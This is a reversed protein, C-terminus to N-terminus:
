KCDVVRLDNTTVQFGNEDTWEETGSQSTEPKAQGNHNRCRAPNTDSDDSMAYHITNSKSTAEQGHQRRNLRQYDPPYTLTSNIM